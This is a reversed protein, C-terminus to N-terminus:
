ETPTGSDPDQDTDTDRVPRLRRNEDTPLSPRRPSRSREALCEARIEERLEKVDRTLRRLADATEKEFSRAM